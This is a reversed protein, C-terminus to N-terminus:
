KRQGPHSSEAASGNTLERFPTRAETDPLPKDKAVEKKKANGM